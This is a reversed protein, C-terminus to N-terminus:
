ITQSNVAKVSLNSSTLKIVFPKTKLFVVYNFVEAVSEEPLTEIEKILTATTVM